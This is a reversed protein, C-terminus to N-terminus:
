KGILIIDRGEGLLVENVGLMFMHLPRYDESLEEKVACGAGRHAADMGVVSVVCQDNRGRLQKRLM